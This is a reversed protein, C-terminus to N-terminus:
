HTFLLSPKKEGKKGGLKLCILLGSSAADGTSLPILTLANIPSFSRITASATRSRILYFGAEGRATERLFWCM